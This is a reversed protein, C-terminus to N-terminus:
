KNEDINHKDLCYKIENEFKSQYDSDNVYLSSIQNKHIRNTVHVQNLCMPEGYNEYLTQYFDCDMMMSLTPDFRESIGNEFSLVSPSSITNVGRIIENNWKPLMYNYFGNTASENVHNCGSVLWTINNNEFCESIENLSSSSYFFDDAFMIKIIDGEAMDIASNTNAPGGNLIENKFYKITFLDSYEECIKLISDDSSQDSICVEYNKYIQESISHLLERLYVEDNFNNRITPICISIKKM